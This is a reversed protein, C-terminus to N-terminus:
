VLGTFCAPEKAEGAKDVNNIYSLSSNVTVLATVFFALHAGVLLLLVLRLHVQAPIIPFGGSNDRPLWTHRCLQCLCVLALLCLPKEAVSSGRLM